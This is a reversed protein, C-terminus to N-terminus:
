LDVEENEQDTGTDNIYGKIRSSDLPIERESVIGYGKYNMEEVIVVGKEKDVGRVLAVHGYGSENTIIMDANDVDSVEFNDYKEAQDLWTGANGKWPIAHESAAFRTCNGEPFATRIDPDKPAIKPNLFFGRFTALFIPFVTM